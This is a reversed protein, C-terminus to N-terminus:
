SLGFQGPPVVGGVAFKSFHETLLKYSCVDEIDLKESRTLNDPRWRGTNDDILGAQGIRM